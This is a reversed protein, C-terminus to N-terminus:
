FLKIQQRTSIADDELQKAFGIHWLLESQKLSAVGLNDASARAMEASDTLAKALNARAGSIGAVRADYEEQTLKGAAQQQRLKALEADQKALTEPLTKRIEKLQKDTAHLSNGMDQASVKAVSRAVKRKGHERGILAGVGGGAVAGVVCKKANSASVLGLGCGIVAGYAAGKGTSKRVMETALRNLSQAQEGLRTVDGRPAVVGLPDSQARTASDNPVSCATLASIALLTLANRQFTNM